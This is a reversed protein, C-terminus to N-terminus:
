RATAPTARVPLSSKKKKAEEERKLQALIQDREPFPLEKWGNAGRNPYTDVVLREQPGFVVVMDRWRGEKSVTEIPVFVEIKEHAKLLPPLGYSGDERNANPMKDFKSLLKKDKDFFYARGVIDTGKVDHSTSLTVKLCPWKIRFVGDAAIWNDFVAERIGKLDIVPPVQAAPSSQAHSTAISVALVVCFSIPAVKM